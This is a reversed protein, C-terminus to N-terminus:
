YKRTDDVWLGDIEKDEMKGVDSFVAGLAGSGALGGGDRETTAEEGGWWSRM